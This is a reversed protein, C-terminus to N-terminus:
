EFDLGIDLAKVSHTLAGISIYHVGTKAFEEIRELTIGGSAETEFRGDIMTIANAVINPPMNDLLVVDIKSDLITSLQELTDVEVEIRIGSEVSKKVLEIAKNIDGGCAAIHNDKIMVADYLGFRHNTGGGDRVAKKQLARMTPLTKRTCTIKTPYEKAAEVYKSTQTAIGSLHQLYNLAVREHSLIFKTQANIELLIDGKKIHSGDTIIPATEFIESAIDMGSLVGDERAVIRAKSRHSNPFIANSTIDGAAGLDESLAQLILDKHDHM